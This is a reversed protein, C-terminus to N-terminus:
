KEFNAGCWCEEELISTKRLIINNLSSPPLVSCKTIEIQSLSSGKGGGLFINVKENVTLKNGVLM